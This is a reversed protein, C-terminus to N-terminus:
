HIPKSSLSNEIKQCKVYEAPNLMVVRGETELVSKKEVKTTFVTFFDTNSEYIYVIECVTTQMFGAAAM